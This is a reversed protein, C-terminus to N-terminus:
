PTALLSAPYFQPLLNLDILDHRAATIRRGSPSIDPKIMIGAMRGSHAVQIGLAGAARAIDRIESYHPQPLHHQNLEMSRTAVRALLGADRTEVAQRLKGRLLAYEAIEDDGYCLPPLALTDVPADPALNVSLLSFPPLPGAYLELVRGARQCVLRARRGFMTGDSATEAAVALRFAASAKLEVGLFRAVARLAAVVDATSSGIGFGEAINSRLSIELGAGGYGLERCLMQAAALAKRKHAPIVTMAGCPSLRVSAITISQPLPLTVLGRHLAGAGDRFAGQLIEGHHGIAHATASM